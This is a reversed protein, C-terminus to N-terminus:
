GPQWHQWPSAPSSFLPCDMTRLPHTAKCIRSKLRLVPPLLVTAMCVGLGQHSADILLHLEPCVAHLCLLADGLSGDLAPCRRTPCCLLRFSRDLATM